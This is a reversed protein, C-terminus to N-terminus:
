GEVDPYSGLVLMADDSIEDRVVDVIAGIKEPTLDGEEHWNRSHLVVYRYGELWVEFLPMDDEPTPDVNHAVEVKPGFEGKLAATLEAVTANDAPTGCTIAVVVGRCLPDKHLVGLGKEIALREDEEVDRRRKEARARKREATSDMEEKRRQWEAELSAADGGAEGMRLLEALGGADDDDGGGPAAPLAGDVRGGLLASAVVEGAPPPPAPADDDDDDDDDGLLDSLDDEGDLLDALDDLEGDEPGAAAPEESAAARSRTAPTLARRPPAAVLQFAAACAALVPLLWWLRTAM